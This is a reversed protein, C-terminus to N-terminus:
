SSGKLIADVATPMIDGSKGLKNNSRTISGFSEENLVGNNM